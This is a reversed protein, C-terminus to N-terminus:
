RILSTNEVGLRLSLMSSHGSLKGVEMQMRIVREEISGTVDVFKSGV